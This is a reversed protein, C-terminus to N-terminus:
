LRNMSLIVIYDNAALDNQSPRNAKPSSRIYLSTALGDPPVFSASRERGRPSPRVKAGGGIQLPPCGQRGYGAADQRGSWLVSGADHGRKWMLGGPQFGTSVAALIAAAVSATDGIAGPQTVRGLNASERREM